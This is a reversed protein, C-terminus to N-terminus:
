WLPTGNDIAEMAVTRTYVSDTYNAGSDIVAKVDTQAVNRWSM